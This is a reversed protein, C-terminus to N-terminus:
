PRPGAGPPLGAPLGSCGLMTLGVSLALSLLADDSRLSPVAQIARNTAEIIGEHTLRRQCTVGHQYHAELYGNIYAGRTLLNWSRWARVTTGSSAEGFAATTSMLLLLAVVLLARKM